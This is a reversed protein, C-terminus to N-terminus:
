AHQLSVDKHEGHHDLLAEDSQKKNRVVWVIAAIVLIVGVIGLLIWLWTLSGGKPGPNPGPNPGPTPPVSGFPYYATTTNGAYDNLAQVVLLFGKTEPNAPISTNTFNMWYFSQAVSAEIVGDHVYPILTTTHNIREKNLSGIYLLYPCPIERTAIPELIPYEGNSINFSSAYTTNGSYQMMYCYSSFTTAKNNLTTLTNSCTDYEGDVLQYNPFYSYGNVIKYAVNTNNISVQIKYSYFNPSFLLLNATGNTSNATCEDNVWDIESFFPTEFTKDNTFIPTSELDIFQAISGGVGIFAVIVKHDTTLAAIAYEYNPDTAFNGVVFNIISINAPLADGSASKVQTYNIQYKPDKDQGPLPIFTSQIFIGENEDMDFVQFLVNMGNDNDFNSASKRVDVYSTANVDITKATSNGGIKPYAFIRIHTSNSKLGCAVVLGLDGSNDRLVKLDYCFDVATWTENSQNLTYSVSDSANQLSVTIIRYATTGQTTSSNLLLFARGLTTFSEVIEENVMDYLTDTKYGTTLPQVVTFNYLAAYKDTANKTINLSTIPGNFLQGPYFKILGQNDTGPLKTVPRMPVMISMSVNVTINESVSACYPQVTFEYSYQYLGPRNGPTLISDDLVKFESPITISVGPQSYFKYIDGNIGYWFVMDATSDLTSVSLSKTNSYTANTFINDFRRANNAKSAERLLRMDYITLQTYNQQFPLTVYIYPLSDSFDVQLDDTSDIQMWGTPAIASINSVDYVTITKNGQSVLMLSNLRKELQSIGSSAVEPTIQISTNAVLTWNTIDTVNYALLSSDAFVYLYSPIVPDSEIAYIATLNLDAANITRVVPTQKAAKAEFSITTVSAGQTLNRQLVILNREIGNGKFFEIDADPLPQGVEIVTDTPAFQADDPKLDFIFRTTNDKTTSITFTIGHSTLINNFKDERIPDINSMNSDGQFSWTGDDLINGYRKYLKQDADIVYIACTSNTCLSKIMLPTIDKPRIADFGVRVLNNSHIFHPWTSNVDKVDLEGFKFTCGTKGTLADISYFKTQNEYFGLSLNRVEAVAVNAVSLIAVLAIFSKLM